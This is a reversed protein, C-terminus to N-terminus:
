SELPHETIIRKYTQYTLHYELRYNLVKIEARVRIQERQNLLFLTSAGLEYKKRELSELSKLLEIEEQSNEINKVLTNLTNIISLLDAKMELIRLNKSSNILKVSEKIESQKATYRSQEVSFSMNLSVKFGSKNNVDYVGYLGLDVEPYKMRENDKEELYLKEIENNLIKLDPRKRMAVAISKEMSFERKVIDQLLPLHYEKEFNEKTLNLYKLFSNFRNEYNKEASLSNQKAQLVQQKAELLTVHALNGREVGEKLYTEREQTKQLLQAYIRQTVNDRLLMFYNSMVNFYLNRMAEQYEFETKDLNMKALGVRVRRKDIKSLLSVLPIKAGLLMEGNKGTKINNYEQTGDAYRYGLTFDIGSQTAKEVSLGYYTGYTTPYEKEDYKAVISTDYVGEEFNLKEESVYRKALATYIYPNEQTLYKKIDSLSFEQTAFLQSLTLFLLLFIHLM